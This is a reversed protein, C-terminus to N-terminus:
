SVNDSEESSLHDQTPPLVQDGPASNAFPFMILFQGLQQETLMREAQLLVILECPETNIIM